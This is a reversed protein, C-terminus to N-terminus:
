VLLVAFGMLVWILLALGIAWIVQIKLIRRTNIAEIKAREKPDDTHIEEISNDKRIFAILQLPLFILLGYKSGYEENGVHFLSTNRFTQPLLRWLLFGVIIGLASVIYLIVKLQKNSIKKM